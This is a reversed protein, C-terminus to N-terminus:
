HFVSPSACESFCVCSVCAIVYMCHCVCSSARTSCGSGLRSIRVPVREGKVVKGGGELTGLRDNGSPGPAIKTRPRGPGDILVSTTLLSLETELGGPLGSVLVQIRTKIRVCM